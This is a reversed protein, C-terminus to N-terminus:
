KEQDPIWLLESGFYQEKSINYYWTMVKLGALLSLSTEKTFQFNFGCKEIVRKSNLNEEFHMCWILELNEEEFGYRIVEKTAEPILGRGWYKPNLVYGIERQAIDRIKSDPTRNHLGISGIVKKESKLEVAYVDNEEKFINMITRSDEISQHPPWGANPGVDPHKAYEFLDQDDTDKWNRLILRHTELEIM